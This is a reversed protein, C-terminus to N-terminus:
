LGFVDRAPSLSRGWCVESSFLLTEVFRWGRSKLGLTHQLGPDWVAWLSMNVNPSWVPGPLGEFTKEEWIRRKQKLFACKRTEKEKREPIEGSIHRSQFSEKIHRITSIRTKWVLTREPLPFIASSARLTMWVMNSNQKTGRPFHIWYTPFTFCKRPLRRVVTYLLTDEVERLFILVTRVRLIQIIEMHSLSLTKFHFKIANM